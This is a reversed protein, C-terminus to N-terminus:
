AVIERLDREREHPCVGYIAKAMNCNHCLVQFGAPFNNDVLWKYLRNRGIQKRHEKGDGNIHDIALFEIHDEGCCACKRGYHDYVLNKYKLFYTRSRAHQLERHRAYYRANRVKIKDSNKKGYERDYARRCAKCYCYKGDKSRSTRSAPAFEALPKMKQCRSCLKM